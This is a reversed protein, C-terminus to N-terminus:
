KKLLLLSRKYEDYEINKNLPDNIKKEKIVYNFFKKVNNNKNILTLDEVSFVGRMAIGIGKKNLFPISYEIVNQINSVARTTVYDFNNKLSEVKKLDEARGHFFLTNKINNEIIFEEIIKIKKNKSDLFVVNLNDIAILLPIGPFGAGTGIDLLKGEKIYKTLYLSDIYHKYIFAQEEIIATLNISKNKKLIYKMYKYLLNIKNNDLLIEINNIKLGELLIEKFEDFNM